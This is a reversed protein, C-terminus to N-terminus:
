SVARVPVDVRACDAGGLPAPVSQTTIYDGSTVDGSGTLDVHVAVIYSARPDLQTEDVDLAFPVVLLEGARVAVDDLRVEAITTAAADARSVDQIRVHATARASRGAADAAHVEGEIRM